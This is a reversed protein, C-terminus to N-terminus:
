SSAAGRGWAWVASGIGDANQNLQCRSFERWEKGGRAGRRARPRLRSSDGCWARARAPELPPTPSAPHPPPPPSRQRIAEELAHIREDLDSSKDRGLASRAEILLLSLEAASAPAGGGAGGLAGEARALATAAAASRADVVGVGAAAATSSQRTSAASSARSPIRDSGSESEGIDDLRPSGAAASSEADTDGLAPPPPLRSLSGLGRSSDPVSSRSTSQSSRPDALPPKSSSKYLIAKYADKKRVKARHDAEKAKKIHELRLKKKVEQELYVKRRQDLEDAVRSCAVFYPDPDTSTTIADSFIRDLDMHLGCLQEILVLPSPSAPDPVQMSLEHCIGLLRESEASAKQSEVTFSWGFLARSLRSQLSSKQMRFIRKWKRAEAMQVAHNRAQDLLHGKGFHYVIYCIEEELIIDGLEDLTNQGYEEITLRTRDRAIGRCGQQYAYSFVVYTQENEMDGVAKISSIAEMSDVFSVPYPGLLTNQLANGKRPLMIGKGLFPRGLKCWILQHYLYFTAHVIFIIRDKNSIRQHQYCGYNVVYV